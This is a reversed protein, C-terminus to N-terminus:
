PRTPKYIYLISVKHVKVEFNLLTAFRDVVKQKATYEVIPKDFHVAAVPKPRNYLATCYPSVSSSSPSSSSLLADSHACRKHPEVERQHLGVRLTCLWRHLSLYILCRENQATLLHILRSAASCVQKLFCLSGARIDFMSCRLLGVRVEAFMLEVSLGGFCGCHLKSHQARSGGERQEGCGKARM